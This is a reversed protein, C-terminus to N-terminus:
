KVRKRSSTKKKTDKKKTVKESKPKEAAQKDPQLGEVGFFTLTMARDIAAQLKVLPPSAAKIAEVTMEPNHKQFGIAALRTLEEVAFAGVIGLKLMKEPTFEGQTKEMAEYDFVLIKEKGGIVIGVEGKHKNAKM